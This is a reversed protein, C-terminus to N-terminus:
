SKTQSAWDESEPDTAQPGARQETLEQFSKSSDLIDAWELYIELSSIRGSM